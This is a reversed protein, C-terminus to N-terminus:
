INFRITLVDGDQVIYNKGELRIKGHQRAEAFGGLADLDEFSVVEARIFGKEMDSHITGAAEQATTGQSVTWAHVDKESGTFFSILGLLDYSLRIFRNLSPEEIEYEALFIEAEEVPLQAIEMELKAPMCIVQTNIFPLDVEIPSQGEVQNIVILQPKRSLLGYSSLMKEEEENFSENRLPIEDSLLGQLKEFLATERQVLAKDRGIGGRQREEALRQLKREVLILDNLILDTEMTSLDRRPDVRGAFHPVSPNSFARVVHIFGDMQSLTNLLPGSIGKESVKGALGAIDVYTVKARVVKKPQFIEALRGVRDDPVDIVATHVEVKGGSINTPVDGRTLANFLTTKGSQPLGIIGLQM